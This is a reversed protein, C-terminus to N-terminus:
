YNQCVTGLIQKGFSSFLAHACDEILLTEYEQCLKALKDLPQPFGFYHIVLLVRANQVKVELDDFDIELNERIKYFEIDCGAAKITSLVSGCLYAPVLVVDQTLKCTKLGYFLATRGHRFFLPSNQYYPFHFCHNSREYIQRPSVVPEPPIYYNNFM